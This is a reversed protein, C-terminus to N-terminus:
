TELLPKYITHIHYTISSCSYSRHCRWNHSILLRSNGVYKYSHLFCIYNNKYVCTCINYTYIQSFPIFCASIVIYTLTCRLLVYKLKYLEESSMYNNVAFGTQFTESPGVRNVASVNVIYYVGQKLTEVTLNHSM